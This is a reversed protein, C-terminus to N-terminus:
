ADDDDDHLMSQVAVFTTAGETQEVALVVPVYGPQRVATRGDHRVVVRRKYPKDPHIDELTNIEFPAVRFHLTHNDIETEYITSDKGRALKMVAIEHEEIPLPDGGQVLNIAQEPNFPDVIFNSM